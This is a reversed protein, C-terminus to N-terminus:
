IIYVDNLFLSINKLLFHINIDIISKFYGKPYFKM